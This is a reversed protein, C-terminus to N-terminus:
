FRALYVATQSPKVQETQCKDPPLHKGAILFPSAFPM